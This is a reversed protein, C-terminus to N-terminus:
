FVTADRDHKNANAGDVVVAEAAVVVVAVMDAMVMDATAMAVSSTWMRVWRGLIITPAMDMIATVM